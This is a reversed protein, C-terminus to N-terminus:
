AIGAAWACCGVVGLVGCAVGTTKAEAFWKSQGLWLPLPALSVLVLPLKLLERESRGCWLLGIHALVICLSAGTGCVCPRRWLTTLVAFGLAVAAVGAIQWDTGGARRALLWADAALVVTMAFPVLMGPHAKAAGRIVWWTTGLVVWGVGLFAVCGEFTWGTRLTGTLLWPLLALLAVELVLLLSKPLLRLDYGAGLVGGVLLIWWLWPRPEGHEADLQWPWDPWGNAMGFPVCIAIAMAIGLWKPGGVGVGVLMAATAPIVGYLVWLLLEM